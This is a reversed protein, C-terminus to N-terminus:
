GFIGKEQIISLREKGVFLIDPEPVQDPALVVATRSGLAEGLDHEEAYSELLMLLFRQIREHITLAPSPMVLVGDILEPKSDEPADSMFEEATMREPIEVRYYNTM